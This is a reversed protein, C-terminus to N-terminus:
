SLKHRDQPHTKASSLERSLEDLHEHINLHSSLSSLSVWHKFVRTHRTRTSYMGERDRNKDSELERVGRQQRHQDKGMKDDKVRKGLKSLRQVKQYRDVFFCFLFCM